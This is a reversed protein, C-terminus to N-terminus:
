FCNKILKLIGFHNYPHKFIFLTLEIILHVSPATKRLNEEGFCFCFFLVFLFFFQLVSSRGKSLFKGYGHVLIPLFILCFYVGPETIVFIYLEVCSQVFIFYYPNGFSLNLSEVDVSECTIPSPYNPVFYMVKVQKLICFGPFQFLPPLNNFQSLGNLLKLNFFPVFM